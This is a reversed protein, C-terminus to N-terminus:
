QCCSGGLGPRWAPETPRLGTWAAAQDPAAGHAAPSAPLPGRPRSDASPGACRGLASLGRLAAFADLRLLEWGGPQSPKFPSGIAHCVRVPKLRGLASMGSPPTCGRGRSRDPLHRSLTTRLVSRVYHPLRLVANARACRPAATSRCGLAPLVPLADLGHLGDQDM